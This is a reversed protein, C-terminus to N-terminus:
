RWGPIYVSNFVPVVIKIQQTILDFITKGEEYSSGFASRSIMDASLKQLSSWVEIECSGTKSALEEWEKIMEKSSEWIAPVM